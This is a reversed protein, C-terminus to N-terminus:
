VRAREREERKVKVIASGNRAFRALDSTEDKVVKISELQTTYVIKGDLFPPKLDRVLLHVRAQEEDDIGLDGEARQAVGSTLM